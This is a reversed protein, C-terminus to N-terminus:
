YIEYMRKLINCSAGYIIASVFLHERNEYLQNTPEVCLLVSSKNTKFFPCIYWFNIVLSICFFFFDRVGNKWKITKLWIVDFFVLSNIRYYVPHGPLKNKFIFYLLPM